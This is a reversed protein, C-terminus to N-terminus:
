ASNIFKIFLYVIGLGISFFVFWYLIIKVLQSMAKKNKMKIKKGFPLTSLPLGQNGKNKNKM